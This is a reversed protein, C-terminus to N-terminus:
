NGRGWNGSRGDEAAAPMRQHRAILDILAPNIGGNPISPRGTDDPNRLRLEFEGQLLQQVMSLMTAEQPTVEITLTQYRRPPGQRGDASDAAVRSGLAKVEVHEMVPLTTPLAGGFPFTGEIDVFMGVRLGGVATRSNIPLPVWRKGKRVHQDLNRGSETTFLAYTLLESEKASQQFATKENVYIKLDDETVVGLSEFSTRFKKPVNVAVVYKEELRQGRDIPKTLKYVKFGEETVERRIMVIYFNTLVVALLALVVAVIMLKASGTGAPNTPNPSTM